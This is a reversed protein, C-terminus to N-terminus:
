NSYGVVWTRSNNLESKLRLAYDVVVEGGLFVFQLDGLKWTAIPYPYAPEIKGNDELQQKLLKARAAIFKDKSTMDEDLQTADPVNQFAVPIEAYASTLQSKIPLMEHTLLVSEVTAALHRGYHAALEDARRPLPNQDAGCGAWFMATCDPYIKELEIQAFGPYDGSWQYSSLVTAHCAYGFVVSRLKGDIDRIALVPVDHDFPGRITGATRLSRIEAESNNRRNAAFTTTGTGWSLTGAQMSTAAQHVVDVVKSILVSTYSDIHDQQLKDAVAYNMPKLNEGIAPGTHTHSCCIAYDGNEFGYRARLERGVLQRFRGGVGVVDLTILACKKSNADELVLAKAWLDTLTGEAPRDRSAYGAMLMPTEPTIKVRAVGFQWANSEQKTTEDTQGNVGIAFSGITTFAIFAQLVKRRLM